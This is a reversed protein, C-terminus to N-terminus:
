GKRVWFRVRASATVRISVRVRVRVRISVQRLNLNKEAANVYIFRVVDRVRVWGRRLTVRLEASVGVRVRVEGKNQLKFRLWVRLLARVM